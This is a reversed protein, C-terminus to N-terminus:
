LRPRESVGKAFDPKFLRVFLIILWVLGVCLACSILVGAVYLIPIILWSIASIFLVGLFLWTCGSSTKREFNSKQSDMETARVPIDTLRNKQMGFSERLRKAEEESLEPKKQEM